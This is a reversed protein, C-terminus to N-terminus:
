VSLWGSEKASLGLPETEKVSASPSHSGSAGGEEDDSGEALVQPRHVFCLRLALLLAREFCELQAQEELKVLDIDM